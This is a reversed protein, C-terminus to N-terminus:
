IEGRFQCCMKIWKKFGERDKLDFDSREVSFKIHKMQALELIALIGKKVKIMPFYGKVNISLILRYESNYLYFKADENKFILSLKKNNLLLLRLLHDEDFSNNRILYDLFHMFCKSHLQKPLM